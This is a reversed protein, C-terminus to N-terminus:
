PKPTLVQYIFSISPHERLAEDVPFPYLTTSVQTWTLFMLVRLRLRILLTRQHESRSRLKASRAGQHRVNGGLASRRGPVPLADHEGAGVNRVDVTCTENLLTKVNWVHVPWTGFMVVSAQRKM